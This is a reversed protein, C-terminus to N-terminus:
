KLQLLQPVQGCGGPAHSEAKDLSWESRSGANVRNALPVVALNIGELCLAMPPLDREKKGGIENLFLQGVDGYSNLGHLTITQNVRITLIMIPEALM